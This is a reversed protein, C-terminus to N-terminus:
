PMEWALSISPTAMEKELPDERVLFQVRIEQVTSPNKVSQLGLAAGASRHSCRFNGLSVTLTKTLIYLM